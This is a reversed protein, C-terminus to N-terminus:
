RGNGVETPERGLMSRREGGRGAPGDSMREWRGVVLSEASAGDLQRIYQLSRVHHDLTLTETGPDDVKNADIPGFGTLFDRLREAVDPSIWEVREYYGVARAADTPDSEEVLSELWEIVILDGVYGEPLETLYPKTPEGSGEAGDGVFEFGSDQSGDRGGDADVAQNPSTGHGNTMPGDDFADGNSAGPDAAAAEDFEDATEDFGDDDLDDFGDDLDDFDDDLDDFDDDTGENGDTSAEGAWEADGSEYEAKLEDFSKGGGDNASPDDGATDDDMMDFDDGEDSDDFDEENEDELLDDDFFSEAEAGAIDDDLDAEEAESEDDDFLGLSDGDEFGGGGLSDNDDVFPNIGRTVMEYIDLLGRVDEAIEDVTESIEENESRVTNVTSSLSAVEGELDDVREQLEATADDDGGEGFPDEDDFEGMGFGDDGDDGGVDFDEGFPDDGGLDDGGLDDGGLDDGGDDRDSEGDGLFRDVISSGVLGAAVGLATGGVTVPAGSLGRPAVLPAGSASLEAVIASLGIM